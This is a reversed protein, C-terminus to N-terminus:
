IIPRGGGGKRFLMERRGTKLLFAEAVRMGDFMKIIDRNQLPVQRELTSERARERLHSDDIVIYKACGLGSRGGTGFFGFLVGGTRMLRVLVAALARASPRDLFDFLDWVLVGDVSEADLRFRDSLFAPFADREGQRVHRELDAFLDEVVVKCNLREGFYTINPGVVCGLDLLVPAPRTELQSLFKRLAQSAVVPCSDGEVPPVSDPGAEEAQRLPVLRSLWGRLGRVSEGDPLCM